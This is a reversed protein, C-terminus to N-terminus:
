RNSRALRKSSTMINKWLRRSLKQKQFDRSMVSNKWNKSYRGTVFDGNHTIHPDILKDSLRRYLDEAGSLVVQYSNVYDRLGEYSRQLNSKPDKGEVIDSSIRSLTDSYEFFLNIDLALEFLADQEDIDIPDGASFHDDNHLVKLTDESVKYRDVM